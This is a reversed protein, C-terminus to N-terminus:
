AHLDRAEHRSRGERHVERGDAAAARLRPRSRLPEHERGAGASQLGVGEAQPDHGGGVKEDGGFDRENAEKYAQKFGLAECVFGDYKVHDIGIPVFRAGDPRHAWWRGEDDQGVRFFGTAAVPPDRRTADSGRACGGAVVIALGVAPMWAGRM